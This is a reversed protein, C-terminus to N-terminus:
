DITSLCAKNYHYALLKFHLNLMAAKKSFSRAKRVLRSMRQRLTNNRRASHATEGTTHEVM